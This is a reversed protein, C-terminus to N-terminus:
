KGEDGASPNISALLTSNPYILSGFALAKAMSGQGYLRRVRKKSSQFKLFGFDASVEANYNSDPGMM